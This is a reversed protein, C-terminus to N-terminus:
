IKWDHQARHYMLLHHYNEFFGVDEYVISVQLIFEHSSFQIGHENEEKRSEKMQAQLYIDWYDKCKCGEPTM